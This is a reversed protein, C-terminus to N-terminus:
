IIDVPMKSDPDHLVHIAPVLGAMVGSLANHTPTRRNTSGNTSVRRAIAEPNAEDERGTMAPSTGAM